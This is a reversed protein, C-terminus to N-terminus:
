SATINTTRVVGRVRAWESWGYVRGGLWEHKWSSDATRQGGSSAEKRGGEEQRGDQAQIRDGAKRVTHPPAARQKQDEGAFLPLHFSSSLRM